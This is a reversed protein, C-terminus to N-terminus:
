DTELNNQYQEYSLLSELDNEDDVRMKFLWGDNYCDQNVTEPSPTLSENIAVIQGSVPAYIDAATKVSEIVAIDEGQSFQSDVEPLDIFVIDGLQEQAHDTIGILIIQDGCKKIWEHSRTYRLETPCETM